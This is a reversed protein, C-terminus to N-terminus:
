SVLVSPHAGIAMFARTGTKGRAGSAVERQEKIALDLDILFSPWSPSDVDENIMLNNISIDRHLFGAKHLAEHGEICGDLATLLASRSSAKYIPQGYDRLIVRRHIRNPLTSGAKTPSMSCSRKSPPLPAGTQSSSRKRSTASSSRGKRLTSTTVSSSPMSREPRYNAARTVDLGGRVNSRIDDDKGRIQVTEHHYYRAVNIVGKGSAERLLDGEEDRESYQWSDKIVLPVEPHGECHAKWCTTARGAVCRARQMVEDIIIQETSGNRKIEIFREKNAMMITPDFGLEEENMWLFGLFASVFRLGDENIDFQESAIGGLRDFAWVRMLSGCVTFGLVFRRTDQAALVERAYRGLDLWAESAKDASPNSKLEGPVLIQSWHYKSDKRAEPNNVFGVDM